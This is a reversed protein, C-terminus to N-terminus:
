WENVLNTLSAIVQTKLQKRREASSAATSKVATMETQITALENCLEGMKKFLEANNTQGTMLTGSMQLIQQKLSTEM